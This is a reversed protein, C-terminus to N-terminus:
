VMHDVAPEMDVEVAAYRIPNQATDRAFCGVVIRGEVVAAYYVRKGVVVAEVVLGKHSTDAQVASASEDLGDLRDVPVKNRCKGKVIHVVPHALMRALAVAIVAGLILAIHDLGEWDTYYSRLEALALISAMFYKLVPIMNTHANTVEKGHNPAIDTSPLTLSQRWIPVM